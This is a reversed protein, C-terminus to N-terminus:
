LPLNIRKINAGVGSLKQEMGEYGRDLHYIRRVRTTGQSILGAIVLCASARLDTAMVDAGMLEGRTPTVIATHGEQIKIKAGLRLLEAAHMFRNEFVSEQISCEKDAQTMLVMWQAQLDTAFGPFPETSVSVSKLMGKRADIVAHHRSSDYHCDVGVEILFPLINDAFLSFDGELTLRGKTAAAAIAYTGFEIRDCMVTYQGGKLSSVGQIHIKPTGEGEIKAGMQNLFRCLDIIEPERAANEIVTTGEALCAACIINETGTVSVRPFRFRAGKLKTAKAHVYGEHIKITAGMKALAELHFDIPRAGISCGGPFSVSAEGHKALLPGLCLVSARMKKVLNYNARVSNLHQPQILAKGEELAVSVGFGKLLRQTTRIDVVNPLNHLAVDETCMLSAFLIPLSANKAGSINVHGELSVPGKIEFADM